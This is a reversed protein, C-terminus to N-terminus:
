PVTGKRLLKTYCVNYSTIRDKKALVKATIEILFLNLEGSDWEAFVSSAEDASMGMGSGLIDYAECILQM